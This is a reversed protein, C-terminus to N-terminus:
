APDRRLMPEHVRTGRCAPCKGPKSLTRESFVFGCARCRAPIVIVKVGAAEASRLLHVLDDDIDHRTLGVARALTSVTQPEDGILDLLQRRRTV